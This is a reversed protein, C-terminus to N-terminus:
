DSYVGFRGEEMYQMYREDENWHEYPRMKRVGLHELESEILEMRLRKGEDKLREGEEYEELAANDHICLEDGDQLHKCKCGEFQCPQYPDEPDELVHTHESCTCYVGCECHRPDYGYDEGDESAAMRRFGEQEAEHHMRSWEQMLADARAKLAKGQPTDLDPAKEEDIFTWGRENISVM